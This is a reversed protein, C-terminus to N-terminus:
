ISYVNKYLVSFFGLNMFFGFDPAKTKCKHQRKNENLEGKKKDYLRSLMHPVPLMHAYLVSGTLDWLLHKKAIMDPRKKGSM